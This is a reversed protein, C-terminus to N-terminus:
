RDPNTTERSAAATAARCIALPATDASAAKEIDNSYVRVIWRDDAHAEITTGYFDIARLREVVEWADAIRTSPQWDAAPRTGGDPSRWWTRGGLTEGRWGMVLEAVLRDLGRGAPLDATPIPDPM